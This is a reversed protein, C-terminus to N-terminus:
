AACSWYALYIRCKNFAFGISAFLLMMFMEMLQNRPIGSEPFPYSEGHLRKGWFWTQFVTSDGHQCGYCCFCYCLQGRRSGTYELFIVIIVQKITYRCILITCNVMCRNKIEVLQCCHLKLFNWFYRHILVMILHPIIKSLIHRCEDSFYRICTYLLLTTM